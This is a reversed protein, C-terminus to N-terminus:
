NKSTLTLLISALKNSADILEKNNVDDVELRQLQYLSQRIILTANDIIQQIPIQNM